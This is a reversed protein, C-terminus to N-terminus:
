FHHTENTLEGNLQIEGSPFITLVSNQWEARFVLCWPCYDVDTDENIM